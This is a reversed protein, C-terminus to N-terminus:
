IALASVSLSSLSQQAFSRKRVDSALPYFSLL